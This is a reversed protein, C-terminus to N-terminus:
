TGRYLIKLARYADHGRQSESDGFSLRLCDILTKHGDPQILQSISANRAAEKAIGTLALRMAGGKKDNALTTMHLWLEMCKQYQMYGDPGAWEPAKVHQLKTNTSPVLAAPEADDAGTMTFPATRAAAAAAEAAVAEAAAAKAETVAETAALEAAQVAATAAATVSAATDAAGTQMTTEAAAAVTTDEPNTM